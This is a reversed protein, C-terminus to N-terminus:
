SGAIAWANSASGMSFWTRSGRAMRNFRRSRRASFVPGAMTTRNQAADQAVARRVASDGTADARAAERCVVWVGALRRYTAPSRHPRDLVPVVCSGRDFWRRLSDSGPSGDDRSLKPLLECIHIGPVNTDIPSFEGRVESPADPKLDYTDQHPPGGPLYVMIVAKHSRKGAAAEARLLQPLTLGGLALGGIRLFDRRSSRNCFSATRSQANIQLM